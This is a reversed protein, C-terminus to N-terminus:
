SRHIPTDHPKSNADQNRTPPEVLVGKDFRADARILAVLHPANAARWRQQASEILNFAMQSEVPEPVPATPSGSVGRAGNSPTAPRTRESSLPHDAHEVVM